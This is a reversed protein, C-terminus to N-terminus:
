KEKEIGFIHPFRAIIKGWDDHHGFPIVTYGL